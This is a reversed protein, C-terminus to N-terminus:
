GDGGEDKLLRRLIKGVNSRPLEDRFVVVRPVKYASLRDRCFAIVAEETLAPNRSVVFLKVAEGSREHPIGIAGAEIIDPHEVAAAEVENPYVNFGSVLIMDKKRDKIYIYGADDMYGIDGSRFFGDDDFAILTESEDEWYGPTVQPGRICIEGQEHIGLNPGNHEDRMVVETSPVPLGISGNFDTSDLPNITVAPSTETLGYAQAIPKGTKELWRRAVVEQVAMGGGLTWRLASFDLKHFDKHNLLANFLTNVGTIATFRVHRLDKIMAPIDRANPILINRAGLYAFLLFNATFAFIHYLPLATVICDQTAPDSTPAVWAHAQFLNSVLNGHTLVAGKPRGTTGGTYQLCAMDDHNLAPASFPLTSGQRLATKFPTTGPLSWAPVLRKVHRAVFNTVPGKLGGFLDGIGTTLIIPLDRHQPANQLTHAFMDAIIIAKPRANALLYGLEAPTSLPNANVVVAGVRLVALIAVPYQLLNPMVLMVRDGKTVGQQQLWAALSRAHADFEAYSLAAGMCQYAYQDAHRECAQDLVATLSAYGQAQETIDEPVGAPYSKLWIKNM